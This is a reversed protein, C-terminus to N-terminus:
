VRKEHGYEQVKHELLGLCARGHEVDGLTFSKGTLRALFLIEWFERFENLTGYDGVAAYASVYHRHLNEDDFAIAHISNLIDFESGLGIGLFENDVIVLEGSSTVVINSPIFDPHVIETRLGPPILRNIARSLTKVQEPSVYRRTSAAMRRLLWNLHVLREAEKPGECSAAVEALHLRAQYGAMKERLARNLRGPLLQGEVWEAFVVRGVVGLIQPIPIGQSELIQTAQHVMRAREATECEYCKVPRDRVRLKFARCDNSDGIVEVDTPVSSLTNMCIESMSHAGLFHESPSAETKSLTTSFRARKQLDFILLRENKRICEFSAHIHQKFQRYVDLWWFASFTFVLFRASQAMMRELEQIAQRDDQPSGWYQGEHELFPLVKRDPMFDPGLSNNDILILTESEPILEAIEDHLVVVNKLWSYHSDTGMWAEPRVDIGMRRLHRSLQRCYAPYRTLGRRFQSMLSRGGGHNNGHIRYCGQPEDIRRIAGFIPCLKKLFGDAGHKDDHEPLPMVEDLFWRAWANGSTPSQSLSIPGRRIFEDRFDGDILSDKHLQGTKKGQGDIDWLQWHVKVVNEEQFLEAAKAMAEPLLLDDADLFVVIEGKSREFGANFTSSQGENQKLVPKIRNGFCAIVRRSHDTSGDDVVIVETRPYTQQLASQIAQDLFHGYNYNNVVISVLPLPM